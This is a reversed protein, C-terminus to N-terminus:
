LDMSRTPMRDLTARVSPTGGDRRGVGKLVPGPSSRRSGSSPTQGASAFIM